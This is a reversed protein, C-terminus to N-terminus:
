GELLTRVRAALEEPLFPKNLVLSAGASEARDRDSQFLVDSLVIIRADKTARHRRLWGALELGDPGGPLMVDLIVVAPRDRVAILSAEGASRAELVCLGELRLHEALLGRLSADDEVLLVTENMVPSNVQLFRDSM